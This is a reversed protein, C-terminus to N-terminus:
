GNFTAALYETVEIYGLCSKVRVGVNGSAM